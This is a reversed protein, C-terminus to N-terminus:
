LDGALASLAEASGGSLLWDRPSVPHEEDEDLYLDPNPSTFWNAVSVPHVDTPVKRFVEGASPIQEGEAFQFRPLRWEKGARIAYLTGDGIKQRIRSESVGLVAAAEGVTLSAALLGAYRTVTLDLQAKSEPGDPSRSVDLGGKRLVEIEAKTLEQAPDAVRRGVPFSSVSLAVMREAEAVTEEVSRLIGRERLQDETLNM